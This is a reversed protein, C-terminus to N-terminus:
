YSNEIIECFTTAYNNELDDGSQFIEFYKMNYKFMYTSLAM